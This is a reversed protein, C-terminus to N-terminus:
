ELYNRFHRRRNEKLLGVLKLAKEKTLVTELEGEMDSTIIGVKDRLEANTYGNAPKNDRLQRLRRSYNKLIPTIKKIEKESLPLKQLIQTM